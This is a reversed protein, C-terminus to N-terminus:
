LSLFLILNSFNKDVSSLFQLYKDRTELRTEKAKKAKIIADDSKQRKAAAFDLSDAIRIAANFSSPLKNKNSEERKLITLESTLQKLKQIKTKKEIDIQIIQEKDTIEKKRDMLYQVDKKVYDISKILNNITNKNDTKVSTFM